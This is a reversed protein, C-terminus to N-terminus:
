AFRKRGLSRRKGAAPKPKSQGQKGSSFGTSKKRCILCAAPLGGCLRRIEEFPRNGEKKAFPDKQSSTFHM